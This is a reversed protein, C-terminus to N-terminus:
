SAEGILLGNLPIWTLQAEQAGRREASFYREFLWMDENVLGDEYIVRGVMDLAWIRKGSKSRFGDVAHHLQYANAAKVGHILRAFGRCREVDRSKKDIRYKPKWPGRYNHRGAPLQVLGATSFPPDNPREVAPVFVGSIPQSSSTQGRRDPTKGGVIVESFQGKNTDRWRVGRNKLMRDGPISQDRHCVVTCAADQQFDPAALLLAGDAALRLALGLRTFLRSCFEYAAENHDAQVDKLKLDDLLIPPKRGNLPKGSIAAVDAAADTRIKSFGFPALVALVIERIATDETFTKALYPDVSAEYPTCLLGECELSLTFGDESTAGDQTVIIATAQLAGDIWITVQEGKRTRQVYEDHKNPPPACTFSYSGIPDTYTEHLSLTEWATISRGDSFKLEVKSSM